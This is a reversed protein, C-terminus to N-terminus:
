SEERVTSVTDLKNDLVRRVTDIMQKSTDAMMERDESLTAKLEDQVKVMSRIQLQLREPSPRVRMPQFLDHTYCTLYHLLDPPVPHLSDPTHLLNPPLTQGFIYYLYLIFYIM